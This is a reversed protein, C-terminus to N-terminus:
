RRARRDGAAVRVDPGSAPRRRRCGARRRRRGPGHEVRERSPSITVMAPSSTQRPRPAADGAAAAAVDGLELLVISSARACARRRARATRWWCGRTGSARAAVEGGVRGVQGVHARRELVALHQDDHAAVVVALVQGRQLAGAVEALHLGHEIPTSPPASASSSSPRLGSMMMPSKSETESAASRQPARARRARRGPRCPARRPGARRARGARRATRSRRCSRPCRGAAPRRSPRRASRRRRCACSSPPTGRCPGRPCPTSTGRAGSPRARRQDVGLAHAPEVPRDHLVRSM